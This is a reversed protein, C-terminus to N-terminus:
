ELPYKGNREYYEKINEVYKVQLTTYGYTSELEEKKSRLKFYEENSLSECYELEDMTAIYTEWDKGEITPLGDPDEPLKDIDYNFSLM